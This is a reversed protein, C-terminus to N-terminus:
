SPCHHTQGDSAGSENVGLRRRNSARMATRLDEARVSSEKDSLGWQLEHSEPTHSLIDWPSACSTAPDQSRQFDLKTLCTGPLSAAPLKEQRENTFARSLTTDARISTPLQQIQEASSQQMKVIHTAALLPETVSCRRNDRFRAARTEVRTERQIQKCSTAQM